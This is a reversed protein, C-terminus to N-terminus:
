KLRLVAAFRVFSCFYQSFPVEPPWSDVRGSLAPGGGLCILPGHRRRASCHQMEWNM